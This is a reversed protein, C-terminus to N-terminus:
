FYLIRTTKKQKQKANENNINKTTSIIMDIMNKKCFAQCQQVRLFESDIVTVQIM